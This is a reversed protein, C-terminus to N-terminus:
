SQGVKEESKRLRPDYVRYLGDTLMNIITYCIAIWLVLGQILPYDRYNVAHVMLNGLGPFTFIVEVVAAGGLLSGFSLAILTLLPLMVNRMVHVLLIRWEQLGRARAGYVYDQSLEELFCTRIQRTFSSVMGLALTAVPLIMSQFTGAPNVLPFLKLHYSFIYVLVLAGLFNPMSIGVFSTFRIIYDTLKGKRVASWIGLPLALALTVGLASLALTLTSQLNSMILDLVPAHKSFSEGFDGQLFNLFWTFYQEFFPKDLGYKIRTLELMEETPIIGAAEYMALGPEGPALYTLLFTVFSVALMVSFLQVAALLVPKCYTQFPTKTLAGEMPITTKRKM